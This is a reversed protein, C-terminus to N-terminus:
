EACQTHMTIKCWLTLPSKLARLEVTIYYRYLVCVTKSLVSSALLLVNKGTWWHCGQCLRRRSERPCADPGRLPWQPGGDDAAEEHLGSVDETKRADKLSFFVRTNRKYAADRLHSAQLLRLVTNARLHSHLPPHPSISVHAPTRNTPCVRGHWDGQTRDLPAYWCPEHM